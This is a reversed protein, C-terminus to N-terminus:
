SWRIIGEFGVAVVIESFLSSPFPAPINKRLIGQYHILRPGGGVMLWGYCTSRGFIRELAPGKGLECALFAERGHGSSFLGFLFNM